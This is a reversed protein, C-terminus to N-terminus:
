RAGERADPFRASTTPSSREELFAAVVRAFEDPMQDPAPVMSGHLDVVVSGRIRAAVKRAAPYAFPGMTPAVVLTPASVLPLRAMDYRSVVRHGEAALDGAKLADVVYRELLEISEPYYARAAVVLEGLHSGDLRREVCDM